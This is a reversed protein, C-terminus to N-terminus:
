DALKKFFIAPLDDPGAASDSLQTLDLRVTFLDINIMCLRESTCSLTSSDGNMTAIFSSNSFNKAFQNSSMTCINGPDGTLGTPSHLLINNNSPHLQKFVFNFFKRPGAELLQDEQYMLFRRVSNHAERSMANFLMKNQHSPQSKWRKWARRKQLVLIRITKPLSPRGAAERRGRQRIRLPVYNDVLECLLKYLVSCYDNVSSFNNFIVNWYCLSLHHAMACYNVSLFCKESRKVGDRLTAMPKQVQCIVIIDHDSCILPPQISIHGYRELHTTLIIDRESEGRTPGSSNPVFGM